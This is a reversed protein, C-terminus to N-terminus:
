KKPLQFLNFKNLKDKNNENDPLNNKSDEIKIRHIKHNNPKNSLTSIYNNCDEVVYKYKTIIIKSDTKNSNCRANLKNRSYNKEKEKDNNKNSSYFFYNKKNNKNNSLESNSRISSFPPHKRKNKSGTSNIESNLYTIENLTIIKDYNIPSLKSSKNTNLCSLKTKNNSNNFSPQIFSNNSIKSFKSIKNTKPAIIKFFSSNKPTMTNYKFLPKVYNQLRFFSYDGKKYQSLYKTQNKRAIYKNQTPIINYKKTKPIIKTYFTVINRNTVIKM